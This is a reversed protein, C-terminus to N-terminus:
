VTPSEEPRWWQTTARTSPAVTTWMTSACTTAFPPWPTQIGSARTSTSPPFPPLLLLPPSCFAGNGSVVIDAGVEAQAHVLYPLVFYGIGVSAACPLSSTRLAFWEGLCWTVASWEGAYLDVVTEGACPFSAVRMKETINGISFMCKTVDYEYKIGNDVHRVISSLSPPPIHM